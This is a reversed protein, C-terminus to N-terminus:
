ISCFEEDSDEVMLSEYERTPVGPRTFDRGGRKIESSGKDLSSSSNPFSLDDRPRCLDSLLFLNMKVFSSVESSSTFPNKKAM